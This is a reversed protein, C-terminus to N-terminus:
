RAVESASADLVARVRRRARSLRSRVTGNAVGTVVAIEAYSLEGWALLLLAEREEERLAEVASLLIPDTAVGVEAAERAARAQMRAHARSSRAQRRLEDAILNRAIAHLWARLSGDTTYARHRRAFARAFTEALVDEAATAGVRHAAFRFIPGAHREFVAVFAAGDARARQLLVDDNM